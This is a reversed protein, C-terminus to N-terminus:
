AKNLSSCPHLSLVSFLLHLVFVLRLVTNIRSLPFCHFQAEIQMELQSFHTDFFSALLTRHLCGTFWSLPAQDSATFRFSLLYIKSTWWLLDDSSEWVFVLEIFAPPQAVGSARCELDGSGKRRFWASVVRLLIWVWKISGLFDSLLYKQSSRHGWNCCSM